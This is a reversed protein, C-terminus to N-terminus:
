MAGRLCTAQSVLGQKTVMPLKVYIGTSITSMGYCCYFIIPNYLRHLSGTASSYSSMASM